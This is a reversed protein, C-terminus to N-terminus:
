KMDPRDNTNGEIKIRMTEKPTTILIRRQLHDRASTNGIQEGAAYSIQSAHLDSGIGPSKISSMINNFKDINLKDAQLIRIKRKSVSLDHRNGLHPYNDGVKSLSRNSISASAEEPDQSVTVPSSPQEPM